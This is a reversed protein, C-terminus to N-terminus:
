CSHMCFLLWVQIRTSADQEERERARKSREKRAKESLESKDGAAVSRGRLSVKKSVDGFM